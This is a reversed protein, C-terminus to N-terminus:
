LNNIIMPKARSKPNVNYTKSSKAFAALTITVHGGAVESDGRCLLVLRVPQLVM